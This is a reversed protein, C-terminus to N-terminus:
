QLVLCALVLCPLPSTGNGRAGTIYVPRKAAGREVRRRRGDEVRKILVRPDRRGERKRYRVSHTNYLM